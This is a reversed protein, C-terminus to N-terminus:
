TLDLVPHEGLIREVVSHKNLVRYCSAAYNKSFRMNDFLKNFYHINVRLCFEYILDSAFLWIQQRLFIQHTENLNVKNLLSFFYSWYLRILITLFAKFLNKPTKKFNFYACKFIKAKKPDMFFTHNLCVDLFFLLTKEFFKNFELTFDREDIIIDQFAVYSDFLQPYIRSCFECYHETSKKLNCKRKCFVFIHFFQIYLFIPFFM